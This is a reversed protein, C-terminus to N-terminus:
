QPRKGSVNYCMEYSFDVSEAFHSMKMINVYANNKKLLYTIYNNIVKIHMKITYFTKVTPCM